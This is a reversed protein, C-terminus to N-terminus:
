LFWPTDYLCDHPVVGDRYFSAIKHAFRLTVPLHIERSYLSGWHLATLVFINQAAEHVDVFSDKAKKINIRIPKPTGLRHEKTKSEYIVDGTTELLISEKSLPFSLGRPPADIVEDVHKYLRLHNDRIVEVLSYKEVGNSDLTESIGGVEDDHYRGLRHIVLHQPLKRTKNRHIQLLHETM